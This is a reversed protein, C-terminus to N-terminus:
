RLGGGASVAPVRPYRELLEDTVTEMVLQVTRVAMVLALQQDVDAEPPIVLVPRFARLRGAHRGIFELMDAAPLERIVALADTLAVMGEYYERGNM